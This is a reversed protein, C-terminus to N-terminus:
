NNTRVEMKDKQYFIYDLCAAFGVTYNTFKPAGCASDLGLGHEPSFGEVALDPM